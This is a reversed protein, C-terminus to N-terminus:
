KTKKGKGKPEKAKPEKAKKGDAAKKTEAKKSAATPKKAKIMADAEITDDDENNDDEEDDSGNLMPDKSKTKKAVNAVKAYPLVVEKNYSRTFAAKVKSEIAKMPDNQNPWTTVEQLNDLDERMLSYFEMSKVSESIGDQGHIKMPRVIVDRLHQIFDQNLSSKSLGASM